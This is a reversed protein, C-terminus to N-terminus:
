HELSRLHETFSDNWPTYRHWAAQLWDHAERESAGSTHMRWAKLVLGTRSRGGRCHVVVNRGEARFAEITAVADDVVEALRPNCDGEDDIIFYQRRWPHEIFRDATRTLSVVGWDTPVTAAGGLDAAYVGPAVETPGAPAELRSEGGETIGILALAMRQIDGVRYELRGVPADIRGNVYTSWRAPIAQVGYHAGALAGTVCAVTDTDGGLDIAAVVADEFTSTNRISWVAHALCTVVWGNSRHDAFPSWEPSLVEGYTAHVSAPMDALVADMTVFMDAGGIASRIMEVALLTGWAADQAQHTLAAQHLVVDRVVRSPEDLLALALPFSRMLSGNGAGNEDAVIERWDGYSLSRRTTSGVDRATAVWARFWAWVADADYAGERHLAEAFAMAMQTDDTFEGLGWGFVGGGTMEGTGGMVPNPFRERYAGRPGFEFPAGLADGVAAGVMTGIARQKTENTHKTRRQQLEVRM